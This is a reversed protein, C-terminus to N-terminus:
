GERFYKSAPKQGQGWIARLLPKLTTCFGKEVAKIEIQMWGDERAQKLLNTTLEKQGVVLIDTSEAMFEELYQMIGM